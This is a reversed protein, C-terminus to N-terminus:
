AYIDELLDEIPPEPSKDAYHVAEEVEEEVERELKSLGKKTLYGEELAWQKFVNVPDRKKWEEEEERDRYDTPDAM